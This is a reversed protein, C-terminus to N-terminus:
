SWFDTLIDQYTFKKFVYYHRLGLVCRLIKSIFSTAIYKYLKRWRIYDCVEECMKDSIVSSYNTDSVFFCSGDINAYRFRYGNEYLRIYLELDQTYKYKENFFNLNEVCGKRFFIACEPFPCEVLSSLFPSFFKPTNHSKVNGGDRIIYTNVLLIDIKKTKYEEAVRGLTGPLYTDDANISAVVDGTAMKMGKNLAETMSDDKESIYRIFPYKDSYEKIINLTSDTSVGDVIIYELDFSDCKQTVVSDITRKITKESNYCPTIISIKM